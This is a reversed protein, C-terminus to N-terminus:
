EIIEVKIHEPFEQIYELKNELVTIGESNDVEIFNAMKYTIYMQKNRDTKKFDALLRKGQSLARKMLFSMLVTGVGKSVTRCSMLLLKITWKEEYKHVLALGIKGYPGYKDELECVWLDYEPLTMFTELEQYSYQVGTSNLQNTRRTLEELRLLDEEVALSIKFNMNLSKLFESKPGIFMSESESRNKDELYMLRRRKSDRTVIKPNLREMSLLEKYKKADVVEVEPHVFSVEEREFESDDIFVIANKAINLKNQIEDIAISKSNWNIQPYLFYEEIDMQKLIGMAHEFNNKSAISMLIGREDLTKIIELIGDKLVVSDDELLTGEWLTDDLDWVVCKVEVM